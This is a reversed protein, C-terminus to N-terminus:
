SRVNRLVACDVINRQLPKSVIPDILVSITPILVIGIEDRVLGKQGADLMMESGELCDEKVLLKKGSLM